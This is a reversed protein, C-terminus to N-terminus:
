IDIVDSPVVEFARSRTRLTAATEVVVAVLLVAVRSCSERREVRRRRGRFLLLLVVVTEAPKMTEKTIFSSSADAVASTM